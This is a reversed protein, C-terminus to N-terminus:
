PSFRLHVRTSDFQREVFNIVCRMLNEKGTTVNVFGVEPLERDIQLGAVTVQYSFGPTLGDIVYFTTDGGHAYFYDVEGASLRTFRITYGFVDCNFESTAWTVNVETSSISGVTVNAANAEDRSFGLYLYITM